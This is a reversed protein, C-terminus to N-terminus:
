PSSPLGPRMGEVELYSRVDGSTVSVVIEIVHAEPGAVIIMRVLRDVRDGPAFGRVSAKPPEELGLYAFRWDDTWRADGRVIAVAATIEEPTLAALPHGVNTGTVSVTV